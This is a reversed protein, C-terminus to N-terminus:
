KFSVIWVIIKYKHFITKISSTRTQRYHIKIKQRTINHRLVLLLLSQEEVSEPWGDDLKKKLCFSATKDGKYKSHQPCDREHSSSREVLVTHWLELSKGSKSSESANARMKWKKWLPRLIFRNANISEGCLWQFCRQKLLVTDEAYCWQKRVGVWGLTRKFLM